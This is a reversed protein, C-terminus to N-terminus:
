KQSPIVFRREKVIDLDSLKKRDYGIAKIWKKTLVLNVVYGM